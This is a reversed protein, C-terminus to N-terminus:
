EGGRIRKLILAYYIIVLKVQDGWSLKPDLILIHRQIKHHNISQPFCHHNCCNLILFKTPTFKDKGNLTEQSATDMYTESSLPGVFGMRTCKCSIQCEVQMLQGILVVIKPVKLKQLWDLAEFIAQVISLILVWKLFLFMEKSMLPRHLLRSLTRGLTYDISNFEQSLWISNIVSWM